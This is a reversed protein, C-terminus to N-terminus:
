QTPSITHVSATQDRKGAYSNRHEAELRDANEDAILNPFAEACERLGRDYHSIHVMQEPTLNIRYKYWLFDCLIQKKNEGTRKEKPIHDIIFDHLEAARSTKKNGITDFISPQNM